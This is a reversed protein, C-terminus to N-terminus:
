VDLSRREYRFGGSQRECIELPLIFLTPTTFSPATKDDAQIVATWSATEAIWDTLFHSVYQGMPYASMESLPRVIEHPSPAATTVHVCTAVSSGQGWYGVAYLLEEFLAQREAPIALYITLVGEAHAFERYGISEQLSGATNAKYLRLIHPSIAVKAPPRIAVDSSRIIPFLLDRTQEKGYLEIATRVLALRVTAPGPVPLCQASQPSSVPMRCSYLVPLHYDAALWIKDNM